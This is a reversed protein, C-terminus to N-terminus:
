GVGVKYGWIVNAKTEPNDYTAHKITGTPCRNPYGGDWRDCIFAEGDKELRYYLKVEYLGGSNARFCRPDLNQGVGWHRNGRDFIGVANSGDVGAGPLSKLYAHNDNGSNPERHMYGWVGQEMDGNQILDDCEGDQLEPEFITINSTSVHGVCDPVGEWLEYVYRPWVPEGDLLFRVQYNGHTMYVPFKRSYDEYLSRNYDDDYQYFSPPYTVTGDDRVVELDYFISDLQSVMLQVTRYCADECYAISEYYLTCDGRALETLYLKNSVFSGAVSMANRIGPNSSGDPDSIIIDPVGNRNASNADIFKNGSIKVNIFSSTYDWHGDRKDVTNFDVAVSSSCQGQHDFLTFDVNELKVGKKLGQWRYIDTHMRYGIPSYFGNSRCPKTLYPPNTLHMTSLSVGRIDTDTVNINDCWRMELNYANEALLSNELTFHRGNYM